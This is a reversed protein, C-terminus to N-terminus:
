WRCLLRGNAVLGLLLSRAHLAFGIVLCARDQWSFSMDIDLRGGSALQRQVIAEQTAEVNVGRETDTLSCLEGTHVM